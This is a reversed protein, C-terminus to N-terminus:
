DEDDKVSALVDPGLITSPNVQLTASFGERITGLLTASETSTNPSDQVLQANSVVDPNMTGDDDSFTPALASMAGVLDDMDADEEGASNYEERPRSCGGFSRRRRLFFESLSSTEFGRHPHRNSHLVLIPRVSRRRLRKRATGGCRADTENDEHADYEMHMDETGTEEEKSSMGEEGKETRNSTSSGEYSGEDSPDDGAILHTEGDEEENDGRMDGNKGDWEEVYEEEREAVGFFEKDDDSSEGQNLHGTPIQSVPAPGATAHGLAFIIGSLSSWGGIVENYGHSIFPSADTELAPTQPPNIAVWPSPPGSGSFPAGVTPLGSLPGLAPMLLGVTSGGTSGQMSNPLVPVLNVSYGQNLLSMHQHVQHFIWQDPCTVIFAPDGPGAMMSQVHVVDELEKLLNLDDLFRERSVAHAHGATTILFLNPAQFLAGLPVTIGQFSHSM